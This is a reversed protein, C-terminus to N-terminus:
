FKQGGFSNNKSIDKKIQPTQKIIQLLETLSTYSQIIPGKSPEFSMMLGGSSVSDKEVLSIYKIYAIFEEYNKIGVDDRDNLQKIFEVMPISKSMFITDELSLYNNFKLFASPDGYALYHCKKSLTFLQNKSSRTDFKLAKYKEKGFESAIDKASRKFEFLFFKGGYNALLDGLKTDLPTQQILHIENNRKLNQAGAYLGLEYIFHGILQNEYLM